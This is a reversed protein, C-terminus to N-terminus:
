HLPSYAQFVKGQLLLNRWKFSDGTAMLRFSEDEVKLTDCRAVPVKLGNESKNKRSNWQM